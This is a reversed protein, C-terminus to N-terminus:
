PLDNYTSSFSDQAQVWDAAGQNTWSILELAEQVVLDPQLVVPGPVTFPEYIPEHHAVRNRLYNLAETRRHVEKRSAAGSLGSLSPFRSRIAPNWLSHEYRPILLYRWFGLSLEAVIKGEAPRPSGGPGPDHVRGRATTITGLTKTTFWKGTDFWPPGDYWRLGDTPRLVSHRAAVASAIVNRLIIEVSGITVWAEASLRTNHEYLAVARSPATAGTVPDATASLYRAARGTSIATELETFTFAM